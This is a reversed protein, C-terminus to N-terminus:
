FFEICLGHQIESPHLHKDSSTLECEEFRKSLVNIQCPLENKDGINKVFVNLLGRHVDYELNIKLEDTLSVSQWVINSTQLM